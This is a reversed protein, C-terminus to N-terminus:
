VKFKGKIIKDTILANSVLSRNVKLHHSAATQSLYISTENTEINTLRVAVKGLKPKNTAISLATIPDAGLLELSQAQEQVYKETTIQKDEAYAAKKSTLIDEKNKSYM